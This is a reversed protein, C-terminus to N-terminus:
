PLSEVASAGSRDPHCDIFLYMMAMSTPLRSRPPQECEWLDEAAGTL